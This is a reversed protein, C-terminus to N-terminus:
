TLMYSNHNFIHIIVIYVLIKSKIIDVLQQSIYYLSITYFRIQM